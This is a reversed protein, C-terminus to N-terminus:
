LAKEIPCKCGQEGNRAPVNPQLPIWLSCGVMSARHLLNTTPRSRLSQEMYDRLKDVVVWKSVLSETKHTSYSKELSTLNRSAYAVLRLHRMRNKICYGVM